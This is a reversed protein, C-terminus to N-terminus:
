CTSISASGVPQIRLPLWRFSIRGPVQVPAEQSVLTWVQEQILQQFAAIEGGGRRRNLYVALEPHQGAQVAADFGAPVEVVGVARRKVEDSLEQPSDIKMLKIQPLKELSAVLRSGEPDYVAVTFSGVEKPAPFMAGFILSIGLPLVLAFLIYMNRVADLLDKQFVTWVARWNM